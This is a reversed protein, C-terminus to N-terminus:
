LDNDFDEDSRNPFMMDLMDDADYFDNEKKLLTIEKKLKKFESLLVGNPLKDTSCLGYKPHRMLNDEIQDIEFQIEVELDHILQEYDDELNLTKERADIFRTKLKDISNNYM